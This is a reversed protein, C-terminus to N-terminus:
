RKDAVPVMREAVADFGPRDATATLKWAVSAHPSAQNPLADVPLEFSFPIEQGTTLDGRAIEQRPLRVTAGKYDRCEEAYFLEILLARVPGGEEIVVRGTVEEGPQASTRQDLDIRFNLPVGM